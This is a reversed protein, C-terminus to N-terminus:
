ADDHPATIRDLWESDRSPAPGPGEDRAWDPFGDRGEVLTAMVDVIRMVHGRETAVLEDIVESPGLVERVAHYFGLTSKEFDLAHRLGDLDDLIFEVDEFPGSRLTFFQSVAMAQLYRQQGGDIEHVAPLLTDRLQAFHDEHQEEELALQEFLAGLVADESFRRALDRYFKAGLQETAIALEVLSSLTLPRLM